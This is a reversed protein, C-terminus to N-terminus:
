RRPCARAGLSAARARVQLLELLLGLVDGALAHKDTRNAAVFDVVVALEERALSPACLLTRLMQLLASRMRGGEGRVASSLRSVLVLWDLILGCGPGRRWADVNAVAGEVLGTLMDVVARQIPLADCAFILDCVVTLGDPRNFVRPRRVGSAAAPVADAGAAVDLLVDFTETSWVERRACLLHELVWWGRTGVFQAFLPRSRDLLGALIRLASAQQAPGGVLLPFLLHLGGTAALADAISSTHHVDVGGATVGAASSSSTPTVRWWWSAVDSPPSEHGVWGAAVAPASGGGGGHGASVAAGAALVAVGGGPPAVAAGGVPPPAPSLLPPPHKLLRVAGSASLAATAEAGADATAGTGVPSVSPSEIDVDGASAGPVEPAEPVVPPFEVGASPPVGAGDFTPSISVSVEGITAIAGSASM